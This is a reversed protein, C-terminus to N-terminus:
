TVDRYVDRIDSLSEMELLRDYLRTARDTDLPMAGRGFCDLAKERLVAAADDGRSASPVIAVTESLTEGSKLAVDIRAPALHGDRDDFIKLEVAQALRVREPALAADPDIDRLMVTGESLTCAAAYAASFQAAVQPDASPDYSGGVIRNMYKTITVSMRDVDGADFGHQRRLTRVGEVVVHSCLCCPYKKITADAFVFTEGIGDLVADPDGTEYLSFLGAMGDLFRHAATVGRMALQAAHIGARAAFATQLRKALTRESIAQKTGAAQALGLGFANVTQEVNLGYLRAATAVAGFIGYVSAPFWNSQRPTALSIRCMIESGIAHAEVIRRGTAGTAEGVAFAVPVTIAAPHLLSSDHVSDYDLAAAAAGNVFAAQAVSGQTSSGWFRAQPNGGELVAVDLAQRVGDADSGAWGVAVTDAIQRIAALIATAPLAEGSTPAASFAALGHNADGRLPRMTGNM